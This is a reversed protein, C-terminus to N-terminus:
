APRQPSSNIARCKKQRPRLHLKAAVARCDFQTQRLLGSASFRRHRRGDQRAAGPPQDTRGSRRGLIPRQCRQHLRRGLSGAATPRRNRATARPYQGHRSDTRAPRHGTHTAHAHQPRPAPLCHASPATRKSCLSFSAGASAKCAFNTPAAVRAAAHSASRKLCLSMFIAANYSQTTVRKSLCGHALEFNCVRLDHLNRNL